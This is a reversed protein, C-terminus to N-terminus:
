RVIYDFTDWAYKISQYISKSGISDSGEIMTQLTAKMELPIHQKGKATMLVTVTKPDSALHLLREVNYPNCIDMANAPTLIPQKGMELIGESLLVHLCSNENCAAHIRIPVGMLKAYVGATVNGCAGIPVVVQIPEEGEDRVYL